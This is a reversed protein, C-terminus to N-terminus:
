PTGTGNCGMTSLALALAAALLVIRRTGVAAIMAMM